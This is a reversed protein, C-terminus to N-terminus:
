RFPQLHPIRAKRTPGSVPPVAGGSPAVCGPSCQPLPWTPRAPPRHPATTAASPRHRKWGPSAEQQLFVKKVDIIARVKTALAPGTAAASDWTWKATDDTPPIAMKVQVRTTHRPPRAEDAQDTCTCTHMHAHTCTGMKVKLTDVEDAAMEIQAVDTGKGAAKSREVAAKMAFKYGAKDVRLGREECM